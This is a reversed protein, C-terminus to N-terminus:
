GSTTRTMQQWTPGRAFTETAATDRVYPLPRRSTATPQFGAVNTLGTLASM